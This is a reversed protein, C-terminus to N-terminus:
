WYLSSAGVTLTRLNSPHGVSTAFVLGQDQYLTGMRLKEEAQRKRHRRLAESAANILRITRRAKKNKPESFV